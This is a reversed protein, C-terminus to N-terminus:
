WARPQGTCLRRYRYENASIARALYGENPRALAQTRTHCRYTGPARPCRACPCRNRCASVVVLFSRAHSLRHQIPFRTSRRTPGPDRSLGQATPPFSSAPEPPMGVDTKYTAGAYPGFQPASFPVATETMTPPAPPQEPVGTDTLPLEAEVTSPHLVVPAPQATKEEDGGGGFQTETPQTETPQTETPQTEAPERVNRRLRQMLTHELSPEATELELPSSSITFAPHSPRPDADPTATRVAQPSVRHVAAAPLWHRGVQGTRPKPVTVKAPETTPAPEPAVAQQMWPMGPSVKPRETPALSVTPKPQPAPRQAVQWPRTIEGKVWPRGSSAGIQPSEALRKFGYGDNEAQQAQQQQMRQM